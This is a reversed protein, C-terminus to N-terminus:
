NIKICILVAAPFNAIKSFTVEPLFREFQYQLSTQKVGEKKKIMIQTFSNNKKDYVGVARQLSVSTAPVTSLSQISVSHLSIEKFFVVQTKRKQTSRLSILM